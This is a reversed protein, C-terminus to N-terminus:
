PDIEKAQHFKSDDALAFIGQPRRGVSSRGPNEQLFGTVPEVLRYIKLFLFDLM